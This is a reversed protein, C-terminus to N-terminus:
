KNTINYQLDSIKKNYKNIKDYPVHLKRRAANSIIDNKIRTLKLKDYRLQKVSPEISSPRKRKKSKNSSNTKKSKNSSNSSNYVIIPQNIVDKLSQKDTVAKIKGKEILEKLAYNTNSSGDGNLIDYDINNIDLLEKIADEDNDKFLSILYKRNDTRRNIYESQANSNAKGIDISKNCMPESDLNNKSKLNIQKEKGLLVDDLKDYGQDDLAARMGLTNVGEGFCSVVDLTSDERFGFKNYLCMGSANNYSGALELLGTNLGIHKVSKIYIYMLYRSVAQNSCIIKLAPISPYLSCEGIETIIFGQIDDLLINDDSIKSTIDNKTKTKTIFLLDHKRIAASVQMNTGIYNAKTMAAKIAQIAYEPNVGGSTNDKGICPKVIKNLFTAYDPTGDKNVPRGRLTMKNTDFSKIDQGFVLKYDSFKQKVEKSFSDMLEQTFLYPMYVNTM